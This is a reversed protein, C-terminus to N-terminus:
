RQRVQLRVGTRGPEVPLPDDPGLTGGGGANRLNVNDFQGVEFPNAQPDGREPVDPLLRGASPIRWGDPVQTSVPAVAAAAFVDGTAPVTPRLPESPAPEPEVPQEVKPNAPPATEPKAPEHGIPTPDLPSHTGPVGLSPEAAGGRGRLLDEPLLLRLNPGEIAVRASTGAPILVHDDNPGYIVLPATGATTEIRGQALAVQIEPPAKEPNFLALRISVRTREGLLLVTGDVFRLEAASRPHTRVADDVKLGDDLRAADWPESAGRRVQVTGRLDTVTAVDPPSQPTFLAVIALWQWLMM